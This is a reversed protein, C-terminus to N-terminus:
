TKGGDADEPTEVEVNEESDGDSVAPLRYKAVLRQVTRRDLGLVAAARRKRGQNEDLVLQLYRRQLEDMTPRDSIITRENLSAVSEKPIGTAAAIEPPLCDLTIMDNPCLAIARRVANELERVNGPFPYSRLALAAERTLRYPPKGEPTAARLFHAALIDVDGGRERLTPLELTIVSLRYFLDSRFQGAAAMERLSANSAGIVRVNVRKTLTSGVRRVEGSQLVRLLSAQFGASTSALEDLFITGGDAAEFLGSREAVAGTFAGKTHGFLESELLTDTLGSCNVAVFARKTQPSFAHIARAVLEKGTGSEGLVLVPADSRAARAILRYVGVMASSKGVLGSRSIDEVLNSIDPNAGASESAASLHRRLLAAIASVEFPKAIFDTAGEEVARVALEVSGQATMLVIPLSPLLTRLEQVMTLGDGEPMYIDSIVADFEGTSAAALAEAGNRACSVRFGSLSLGSELMLRISHQDDVVLIHPLRAM